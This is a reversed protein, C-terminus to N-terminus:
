RSALELGVQELLASRQEGAAADFADYWIGAKALAVADSTATGPLEVREVAGRAVIDASRRDPNPVVAVFWHYSHGTKLQAGHAALHFPHVGAEFPGPITVDLIPAYGDPDILTFNVAHTTGQSLHWYFTPQASATLAAEDYQPVLALVVLSEDGSRSAGGIRSAPAGRNTRPVFIPGTAQDSKSRAGVPPLDKGKVGNGEEVAQVPGNAVLYTPSGLEVESALVTPPSGAMCFTGFVTGLAIGLHRSM